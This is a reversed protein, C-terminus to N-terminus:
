DVMSDSAGAFRLSGLFTGLNSEELSRESTDYGLGQRSNLSSLLSSTYIKSTVINLLLYRPPLILLQKSDCYKQFSM